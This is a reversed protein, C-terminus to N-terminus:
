SHALERFEVLEAAHRTAGDAYRVSIERCGRDAREVAGQLTEGVAVLFGARDSTSRLLRVEDGPRLTAGVDLLRPDAILAEPIEVREV